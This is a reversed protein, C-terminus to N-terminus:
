KLEVSKSVTSKPFICIKPFLGHFTCSPFPFSLRHTHFFFLYIISPFYSTASDSTLTFPYITLPSFYVSPLSSIHSHLKFSLSPVLAKCPSYLLLISISCILRATSMSLDTSVSFGDAKLITTTRIM